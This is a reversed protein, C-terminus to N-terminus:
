KKAAWLAARMAKTALYEMQIGSLTITVEGEETLLEVVFTGNDLPTFSEFSTKGLDTTNMETEGQNTNKNTNNEMYVAYCCRVRTLHCDPM